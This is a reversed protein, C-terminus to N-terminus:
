QDSCRGEDGYDTDGVNNRDRDQEGDQVLQDPGTDPWYEVGEREVLDSVVAVSVRQETGPSGGSEDDSGNYGADQDIGSRQTGQEDREDNRQENRSSQRECDRARGGVASRARPRSHPSMM